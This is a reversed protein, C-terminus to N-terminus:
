EPESEDRSGLFLRALAVCIVVVIVLMAALILAAATRSLPVGQLPGPHDGWAPGAQLAIWLFTLRRIM